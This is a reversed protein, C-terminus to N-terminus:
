ELLLIKKFKIKIMYHFWIKELLLNKKQTKAMWSFPLFNRKANKVNILINILIESILISGSKALLLTSKDKTKTIYCLPVLKKLWFNKKKTDKDNQLISHLYQFFRNKKETTKDNLLINCTKGVPTDKCSLSSKLNNKSCNM